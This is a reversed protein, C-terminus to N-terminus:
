IFGQRELLKQAETSLFPTKKAGRYIKNLLTKDADEQEETCDNDEMQKLYAIDKVEGQRYNVYSEHDIYDHDGSYLLCSDDDGIKGRWSTVNLLLIEEKCKNPDSCVIWLHDDRCVNLYARGRYFRM